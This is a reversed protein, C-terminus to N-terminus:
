GTVKGVSTSHKLLQAAPRVLGYVLNIYSRSYHQLLIFVYFAVCNSSVHLYTLKVTSLSSILIKGNAVM